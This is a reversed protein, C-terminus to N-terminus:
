LKRKQNGLVKKLNSNEEMDMKMNEDKIFKHLIMSTSMGIHTM